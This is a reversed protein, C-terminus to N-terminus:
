QFECVVSSFGFIGTGETVGCWENLGIDERVPVYSPSQKTSASRNPLHLLPELNHLQTYMVQQPCCLKLLSM